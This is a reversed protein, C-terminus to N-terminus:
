GNLVKVQGGIHQRHPLFCPLCRTLNDHLQPIVLPLVSRQPLSFQGDKVDAALQFETGTVPRFVAVLYTGPLRVVKFLVFM